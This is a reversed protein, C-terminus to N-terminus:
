FGVSYGAILRIHDRAAGNFGVLDSQIGIDFVSRVGVQKRLGVGVSVVPGRGSEPGAQVALEALGTTTFRTPYGIPHTFGITAGPHFTREGKGANTEANLDVNLHVRGYQTAQKSAIGRLRFGVGSADRGTPLYADARVAFAPTNGFERNFNHFVGLNLEGVDFRTDDSGARGGFTPDIGIIWHSNMAFGHLYEVEFGGGLRSGRPWRANLGAEIAHERYAIAEADDFRLPRGSDINNHDVALAPATLLLSTVGGLLFMRKM